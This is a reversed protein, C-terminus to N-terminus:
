EQIAAGGREIGGHLPLEQIWLGTSVTATTTLSPGATSDLTIPRRVGLRTELDRATTQELHRSFEWLLVKHKKRVASSCPAPMWTPYLKQHSASVGITLPHRSMFENCLYCAKKSTGMFLLRPTLEPNHDYFSILQMEAHVTLKMRCARRLRTEPDQTLWAQGLTEKVKDPDTKIIKKLVEMLPTKQNGLSFEVEGPAEVARVHIGTFVAPQKIALKLMAKTAAYYRGLKYIHKLWNPLQGSESGFFDELQESYVWRAQSAWKVHQILQAPSTGPSLSVLSPLHLIWTRFNAEDNDHIALDKDKMLDLVLNISKPADSSRLRELLFWIKDTTLTIVKLLIEAEMDKAKKEIWQNGLDTNQVKLSVATLDDLIEQLKSLLEEPVGINRALRLVNGGPRGEELCVASASERGKRSTSAALAFSDLFKKQLQQYKWSDDHPHRDLSHTTAEGRVPDILHLLTTVIVFRRHAEGLVPKPAGQRSIQSQASLIVGNSSTEDIDSSETDSVSSM